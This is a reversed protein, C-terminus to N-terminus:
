PSIERNDEDSLDNLEFSGEGDASINAYGSLKKIEGNEDYGVLRLYLSLLLQMWLYIMFGAGSVVLIYSSHDAGLDHVLNLQEENASMFLVGSLVLSMPPFHQFALIRGTDSSGNDKLLFCIEIIRSLGGSMLVLGFLGHVKTSIVLHQSHESMAWGTYILLLAPIISRTNNKRSLWMGLLGGCWWIIGMSTHQYDGHNWDEKGWRHETFTNVIGWLCMITSDYFEQSRVNLDGNLRQHQRIWPITLVWALLFGYLIFSSGMIGHAICQGTAKGYCFGFLAVPAMCVRVWGTLTTTFALIKYTRMAWRSPASYPDQAKLPFFRNMIINSGNLLTGIFVTVALEWTLFWSTGKSTRNEHNDVNDPFDFFLSELASFVLSVIHLISAFHFVEAFALVSSISPLILLLFLTLIWHFAKSGANVPHFEVKEGMDMDMGDDAFAACVLFALTLLKSVIPKM